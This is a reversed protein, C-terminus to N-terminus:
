QVRAAGTTGPSGPKAECEHKVDVFAIEPHSIEEGLADSVRQLKETLVSDNM